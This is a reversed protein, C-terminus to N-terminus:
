IIPNCVKEQIQGQDAIRRGIGGNYSLNCACVVMGPKKKRKLLLKTSTYLM